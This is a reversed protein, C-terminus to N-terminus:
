ERFVLGMLKRARNLVARIRLVKTRVVVPPHQIGGRLVVRAGVTDAMAFRISTSATAVGEGGGDVADVSALAAIGASLM